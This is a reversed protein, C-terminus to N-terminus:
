FNEFLAKDGSQAHFLSCARSSLYSIVDDRSCSLLLLRRLSLHLWRHLCVKTLNRKDGMGTCQAHKKESSKETNELAKRSEVNEVKWVYSYGKKHTKIINLHTLSIWKLIINAVSM